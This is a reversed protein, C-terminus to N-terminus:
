AGLTGYRNGAYTAYNTAELDTVYRKLYCDEAWSGILPSTTGATNQAGIIARSAPAVDLPVVNLLGQGVQVGNVWVQWAQTLIDVYLFRMMLLARTNNAIVAVVNAGLTKVTGNSMDLFVTGTSGQWALRVGAVANSSGGTYLLVRLTTATTNGRFVCFYTGGLVTPAFLNKYDNDAAPENLDDATFTATPQSNFNADSAVYAPQPGASSQALTKSGTKCTVQSVDTGNLTVGTDM